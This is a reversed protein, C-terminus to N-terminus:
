PFLNFIQQEWDEHMTLMVQIKGPLLIRVESLRTIWKENLQYKPSLTNLKTTARCVINEPFENCAHMICLLMIAGRPTLREKEIAVRDIFNLVTRAPTILRAESLNFALDCLEWLMANSLHRASILRLFAPSHGEPILLNMRKMGELTANLSAISMPDHGVIVEAFRSSLISALNSSIPKEALMSLRGLGLTAMAFQTSELHNIHKPLEKEVVSLVTVAAQLLDELNHMSEMNKPPDLLRSLSWIMGAFELGDFENSRLKLEFAAQKGILPPSYRM